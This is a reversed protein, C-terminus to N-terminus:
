AGPELSHPSVTAPHCCDEDEVDLEPLSGKPSACVWVFDPLLRINSPGCPPGLPGALSIPTGPPQAEGGTM